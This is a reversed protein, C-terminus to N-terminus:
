CSKFPSLFVSPCCNLHQPHFGLLRPPPFKLCLLLVKMMLPAVAICGCGSVADGTSSDKPNMLSWGASKLTRHECRQVCDPKFFLLADEELKMPMLLGTLPLLPERHQTGPNLQTQSFPPGATARQHLPRLCLDLSEARRAHAKLNLM